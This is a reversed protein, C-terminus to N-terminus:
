ALSYGHFAEMGDMGVIPYIRFHLTLVILVIGIIDLLITAFTNGCVNGVMFIGYFLNSYYSRNHDDSNQAM